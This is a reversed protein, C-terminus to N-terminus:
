SIAVYPGEPKVAGMIFVKSRCSHGNVKRQCNNQHIVIGKSEPNTIALTSGAHMSVSKVGETIGFSEKFFCYQRTNLDGLANYRFRVFNTSLWDSSKVGQMATSSKERCEYRRCIKMREVDIVM